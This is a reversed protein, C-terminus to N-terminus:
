PVWVRDAPRGPQVGGFLGGRRPRAAGAAGRERGREVGTDRQGRGRVRDAPRGPQVRGDLGARRPRAVGVTRREWGREVGAGDRRRVRVRHAPRRPQVGDTFGARRPRAVGAARREWRREVGAGDRRRVRVRHAPRRPQVSGLQDWRPEDLGRARRRRPPLLRQIELTAGPPPTRLDEIERLLALQTTPDGPLTQMAAMRTADRARMAEQAARWGAETQKWALWAMALAALVATALVAGFLRRRVRRARDAAALVAALYRQEVPALEGQYRQRWARVERVVEGTWLLGAAHGSREWDRAAARLRALFATDEQNEAVWGALTPWSAILSEHVIEVTADAEGAGDVTLLRADVLRGLIRRMEDPSGGLECLEGMGRLARTREPTILRLLAVRSLKREEPSMTGLVADAHGALTGAVGGVRRYSAETLRRHVRDRQEWLKAAAFSLLPLAGPTHEVADLIEEILAPPEFQYGTAELPRVLAERLGGRDMPPLLVIARRLATAAAGAEALRDLFDSRITLVVRLPTGADDAAGALCAFFAARDAAPALTYLEELQDVFLLLRKQKRRARGRLRAGLAGPETRLTTALAERAEAAPAAGTADQNTTSVSSLLLEALALLPQSGPRIAVADWADGTQSLAPIVGARVFSSKGAGSPGVIALLPQEGLMAIVEAVAATRGFFRAADGERFPALGAYPNQEVDGGLERTGPALAELEALLERASGTRDECRKILCRDIISALAGLEPFLEQLSPMPVDLRGITDLTPWDLPELPHRGLVLEALLLGVAWLDSRHDVPGAGWQEPSMYPLTGSRGSAGISSGDVPRGASHADLVKAIGFDLVKVVGTDTLMINSPKLDRHVIGHEHACCLARVVPIVLVVAREPPLGSLTGSSKERAPGEHSSPQGADGARPAWLEAGGLERLDTDEGPPPDRRERERREDLVQRLTKGQLYELVIYTTGRHEGLEYIAVINEHSMKATARAEALLHAAGQGGHELLLKIAVLRGLRTDRSLFVTGMGGAGLPRVIEYHQIM